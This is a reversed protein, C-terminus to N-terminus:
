NKKGITEFYIFVPFHDSYGGQHYKGTYTRKPSGKFRGSKQILQPEVFIHASSFKFWPAKQLNSHMLIQDFMIWKGKFRVSGKKQKQFGTMLNIFGYLSFAQMSESLPDDNFDGMLLINAHINKKLIGETIGQVVQSARMRKHKTKLTGDTRSPWHNLILHIEKGFLEGHIHLIDRSNEDDSQNKFDLYHPYACLVKFYKKQYLLAVNMGRQDASKHFVYDYNFEKIPASSILDNLCSKNEVECVGLLVPATDSQMRGIRSIVQSLHDIKQDYKEQNWKYKGNPTYDKDLNSSSDFPDFLNELNYFGISFTKSM